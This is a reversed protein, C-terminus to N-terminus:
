DNTIIKEAALEGYNKFVGNRDIEPFPSKTQVNYNHKLGVVTTKDAFIKIPFRQRAPTNQRSISNVVGWKQPPTTGDRYTKLRRNIKQGEMIHLIDKGALNLMVKSADTRIPNVVCKLIIGTFVVPLSSFGTGIGAKIIIKSNAYNKLRDAETYHVKVTASFNASMEGRARHVSFSEVDPTRVSIGGFGEGIVIEARIPQRILTAM